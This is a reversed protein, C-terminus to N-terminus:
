QDTHKTAWICPGHVQGASICYVIAGRPLKEGPSIKHEFKGQLIRTGPLRKIPIQWDIQEPPAGAANMILLTIPMLGPVTKLTDVHFTYQGSVRVDGGSASGLECTIQTKTSAPSLCGEGPIQKPQSGVAKELHVVVSNSIWDYYILYFAWCGAQWPVGLRSRGDISSVQAGYSTLEDDVPRSGRAQPARRKTSGFASSVLVKGTGLEIGVLWGLDHLPFNWDRNGDFRSAVLLPLTSRKDIDVRGPARLAVGVFRSKLLQVTLEPNVKETFFEEDTLNMMAPLQPKTVTTTSAQLLSLFCLMTCDTIVLKRFYMNGGIAKNM